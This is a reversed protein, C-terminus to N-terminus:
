TQAGGLARVVVDQRAKVFLSHREAALSLTNGSRERVGDTKHSM